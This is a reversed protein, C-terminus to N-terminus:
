PRVPMLPNAVVRLGQRTCVHIVFFKQSAFQVAVEFFIQELAFQAKYQIVWKNLLEGNVQDREMGSHVTRIM